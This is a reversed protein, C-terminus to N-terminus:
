VASPSDSSTSTPGDTSTASRTSRRRSPAPSSLDQPAAEPEPAEKDQGTKQFLELTKRLRKGLAQLEPAEQRVIVEILDLTDELEPNHLEEGYRDWLAQHAEAEQKTMQSVQKDTQDAPQCMSALFAITEQEADPISMVVLMLLKTGFEGPDGAFNLQAQTLAPGAGHTLIRLLRFFQRTRMRRIGLTFGTSLKHETMQPDIRDLESDDPM